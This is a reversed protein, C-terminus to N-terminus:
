ENSDLVSSTLRMTESAFSWVVELLDSVSVDLRAAEDQIEDLLPAALEFTRPVKAAVGPPGRRLAQLAASSAVDRLKSRAIKWAQEVVAHPSESRRAAEQDIGALTATPLHFVRGRGPAPAVNSVTGESLGAFAPEAAATIRLARFRLAILHRCPGARLRTTFFFSCTCKARGFSGDADVVGECSTGQVKAVLLRKGGAMAEDRAIEVGEVLARGNVLEPSEPGLVAESLAVPLIPRWRYVGSAFDFAVQGRKALAHLSGLVVREDARTQARLEGLSARRVTELHRALTDVTTADATFRAFFQDLNSGRTWDNATWGSLALTFRMEGMHATWISPLGSGLLRVEFKETIPLARALAFLRRRGWVKIEEAREGQYPKGRSVIAIGWPDLTVVPPKGPELRFRLSRPGTKERHRKLHALISYVADVSLEVTRTPLAMAAQLQGFGRLWSSPLDIKEERYGAGEGVKVEFGAPDVLLRTSRYTRLTQFHDYLALSYDVNTTGLGDRSANGSARFADREVTLCGYSSEDKAFCEFFVVDPAVTVVPDCPVLHRFLEPDRSSLESAWKRRATWYVDHLRRFDVELNPPIPEDAFRALEKVKEEELLADRVTQEENAQQAQWAVYASKDRKKFKLDGVVVAHLASVAERFRLPHVLEGDFFVKSRALNPEFVLTSGSGSVSDRLGSSGAYRLDLKM